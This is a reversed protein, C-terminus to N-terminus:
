AHACMLHVSEIGFCEGVFYIDGCVVGARDNRECWIWEVSQFGNTGTRDGDHRECM